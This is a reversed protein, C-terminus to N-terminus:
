YPNIYLEDQCEVSVELKCNSRPRAICLLVYDKAVQAQKLAIAQSQEVKSEVIRAAYTICGSYKCGM